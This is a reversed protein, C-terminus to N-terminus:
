KFFQYIAEELGLVDDVIAYPQGKDLRERDHAGWTVGISKVNCENGDRIDGLTDTIFIADTPLINQDSLLKKIKIVKDQEVDSGLIESFSDRLGEKKLFNDINSSYSSSVIVLIYDKALDSVLKSIIDHTSLEMLGKLYVEDWDAVDKIKGEGVAKFYNELFNGNNFSHFYEKTLGPNRKETLYFALDITNVLVGDFDFMVLKKHEM